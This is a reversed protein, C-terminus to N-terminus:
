KSVTYLSTALAGFPKTPNQLWWTAATAATATRWTKQTPDAPSSCVTGNVAAVYSGHLRTIIYPQFTTSLDHLREALEALGLTSGFAYPLKLQVGLKQLQGLSVVLLTEPRQVVSQPQTCFFDAADRTITLQGQHKQALRELLAVTESNRGLDGALLVGNAWRAADVFEALARMAFGGSPNSPAYDAAPFLKSVTKELCDPLVVRVTGAGAREAAAYAEAPEAFSQGCGGVVLLRGAAHKQEPRAWLLDAFLPTEDQKRWYSAAHNIPATM